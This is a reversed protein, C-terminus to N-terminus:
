MIHDLNVYFSEIDTEINKTMKYFLAVNIKKFM